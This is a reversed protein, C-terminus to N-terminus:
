WGAIVELLWGLTLWLSLLPSNSKLSLFDDDDDKTTDVFCAVYPGSFVSSSSEPLSHQMVRAM